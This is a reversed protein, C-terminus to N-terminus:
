SSESQTGPLVATVVDLPLKGKHDTKQVEKVQDGEVAWTKVLGDSAGTFIYLREGNLNSSSGLASISSKVHADWSV